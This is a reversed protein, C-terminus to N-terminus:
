VGRGWVGEYGDVGTEEVLDKMGVALVVKRGNWVRGMEDMAEFGGRGLKRVKTVGVDEIRVTDYRAFM